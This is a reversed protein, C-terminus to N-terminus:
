SGRELLERLGPVLAVLLRERRVAVKAEAAMGPFFRHERGGAVFTPSSLPAHALVV